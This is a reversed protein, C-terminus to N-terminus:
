DKMGKNKQNKFNKAYVVAGDKLFNWLFEIKRKKRLTPFKLSPIYV